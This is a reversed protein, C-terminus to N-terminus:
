INKIHKAFSGSRSMRTPIEKLSAVRRLASRTATVIPEVAEVTTDYTPLGVSRQRRHGRRPKARLRERQYACCQLCCGLLFIFGLWMWLGCWAVAWMTPAPPVLHPPWDGPLLALPRGALVTERLRVEGSADRVTVTVAAGAAVRQQQPAPALGDAAADVSGGAAGDWDIEIGGWNLGTFYGEPTRRHDSYVRILWELIGSYFPSAVTHTMGSSTAELIWPRLDDSASPRPPLNPKDEGAGAAAEEVTLDVNRRTLNRPYGAMEAHHVDGSLLVLGAPREAQLLALLRARAKPFHGWSEVFPNSTLLQVSTVLVHVAAQSEHLQQELWTWQAEGLVDGAYDAGISCYACAGRGAAAFVAGFPIASGGISPIYHQDRFSRTDLLIVKVQQPASGFSHSSYVGDRHRRRPSRARVGIFDLYLEQAEQREANEKGADNLGYDHDDWTGEIATTSSILSRYGPQSLQVAFGDSLGGVGHSEGYIADGTWLWLQPKFELIPEWLPQPLWQKNCSGFAMRDLRQPRVEDVEAVSADADSHGSLASWPGLPLLVLALASTM